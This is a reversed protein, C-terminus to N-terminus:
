VILFMFLGNESRNPGLYKVFHWGTGTITFLDIDDSVKRLLELTTQYQFLLYMEVGIRGINRFM